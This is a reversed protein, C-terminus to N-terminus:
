APVTNRVARSRIHRRGLDADVTPQVAFDPDLPETRKQYLQGISDDLFVLNEEADPDFEQITERIFKLTASLNAPNVKVYLTGTQWSKAIPHDGFVAFAIPEIGYQLPKFNFDRAIGAIDWEGFREGVTLGYQRQATQNFIVTFNSKRNDDAIFDRGETIGIGM